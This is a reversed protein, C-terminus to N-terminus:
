ETDLFTMQFNVCPLPNEFSPFFHCKTHKYFVRFTCFIDTLWKAKKCFCVFTLQILIFLYPEDEDDRENSIGLFYLFLGGDKAEWSVFFPLQLNNVVPFPFM